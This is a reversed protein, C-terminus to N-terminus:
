RSTHIETESGGSIRGLPRPRMAVRGVWITTSTVGHRVGPCRLQRPGTVSRTVPPCLLLGRRLCFPGRVQPKVTAPAPNSGAVEPNHAEELRTGATRGGGGNPRRIQPNADRGDRRTRATSCSGAANPGCKPVCGELQRGGVPIANSNPDALRPPAGFGDDVACGFGGSTGGCGQSRRRRPAGGGPEM